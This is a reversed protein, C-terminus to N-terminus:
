CLPAAGTVKVSGAHTGNTLIARTTMVKALKAAAAYESARRMATSVASCSQFCEHTNGSSLATAQPKMAIDKLGTPSYTGVLERDTIAPMPELSAASPRLM